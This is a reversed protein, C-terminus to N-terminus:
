HRASNAVKTQVRQRRKNSETLVAMIVIEGIMETPSEVMYLGNKSNLVEDGPGNV